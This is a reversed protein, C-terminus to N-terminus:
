LQPDAVTVRIGDLAPNLFLQCCLRSNPQREMATCGLMQDENPTMPPLAAMFADDVVVHCTACSATGGCDGVIGQVGNFVAAQMLSTGEAEDVEVTSGDPCKFVAKM